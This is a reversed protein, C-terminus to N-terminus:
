HVTWGRALGRAVEACTGWFGHRIGAPVFPAFESDGGWPWYLGPGHTDPWDPRRFRCWLPRRTLDLVPLDAPVARPDFSLVTRPCEPVSVFSTLPNGPERLLYFDGSSERCGIPFRILFGKQLDQRGMRQRAEEQVQEILRPHFAVDPDLVTTIRISRPLERRLIEERVSSELFATTYIPRLFDYHVALAAMREKFAVPTAWDMFVLWQVAGETQRDMSALCVREFLDFAQALDMEAPAAGVAKLPANFRTIVFHAFPNM